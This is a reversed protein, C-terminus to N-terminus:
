KIHNHEQSVSNDLSKGTLPALAQRLRSALYTYRRIPKDNSIAMGLAKKSGLIIVLRRGRTVGTYLLNRQLLLYHHTTLVLLVAPFENGQSKHVTIAYALTLEEKEGPDYPIARGDFNVLLQGTDGDVGIVQGIDGNFVEKYYNNRLQMVKDGRHFARGAWTWTESGANLRQQLLHNLTQVGLPGRHMPTIVQLDKLPNFGYRRPLEKDVLDLLRRQLAQPEDLELFVFDSKGLYKPLVPFEGQNIRHANVVILSERAQRYIQTLRAVPLVGSAMLDKLINGPGVAPLQHADGVLILRASSPVARLLHAMLYTDVMSTEDVVVVQAKLPDQPNRKFGGTQPSFELARHITTAEAGTAEGLRKAARGTPAMLMVKSGLSRYLDLICSVITTKGTGPGGTIILVKEKLSLAVARAQEPALELNRTQQVRIVLDELHLPPTAGPTAALTGLMQAVGTEATWAGRKYVGAGETVQDTVIRGEQVLRNLAGSLPEVAVRLLEQTKQLLEEQPVYVHGEGAFTDLIHLLGAALRAPALPDLNLRSALRDATLFGLGQIDLALQYPNTTLVEVAKVGYTQYIKTALGLSVGLGQLAVMIERIEKQGQWATEIQALRKPGLGPVELLRERHNEIIELTQAGFRAVLRQAMEPGIGKVLGSALYKKIGAVTAPLVAYWWVARFQEGYKPHIEYKGKIHLQEGESVAALAGVVTTPHRAGKVKLRLVAYHSEPDAFTLREVVGELTELPQAAIEPPLPPPTVTM